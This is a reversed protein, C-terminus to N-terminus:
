ENKERLHYVSGLEKQFGPVKKEWENLLAEEADELERNARLVRLVIADPIEQAMERDLEEVWDSSKEDVPDWHPFRERENLLILM